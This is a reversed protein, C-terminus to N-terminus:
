GGNHPPQLAGHYTGPMLYTRNLYIHIVDNEITTVGKTASFELWDATVADQPEWQIDWLLIGGGSNAIALQYTDEGSLFVIHTQNTPGLPTASESLQLDEYSPYNGQPEVDTDARVSSLLKPQLVFRNTTLRVWYGRTADFTTFDDVDQDDPTFKDYVGAEWRLITDYDMGSVALVSLMSIPEDVSAAGVPIGVLNWGNTFVLPPVTTPQAGTVVWDRAADMYVWYARGIQVPGMAVISNNTSEPTGPRAYRTWQRTENDFSWTARFDNGLAGFVVAPDPNSPSLQFTILNWGPDLDFTQTQDAAAHLTFNAFWFAILFRLMLKM